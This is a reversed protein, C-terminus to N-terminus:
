PIVVRLETGGGHRERLTLHGGLAAARDQMNRLGFGGGTGAVSPRSVGRGDDFVRLAIGSETPRLSVVVNRAGGHRAANAIAERAIRAIQERAEPALEAEPAVDVAVAIGFRGRLDHAIAEFAERPPASRMDSLETITDRSLALARRTAVTLPHDSGLQQAIQAGHAAIFALDQALGDHLDEAVRRREAMAVARTLTARIELNRRVAAALILVLALAWLGEGPTITEPSISPLTLYYLRATALLVAGGALLLLVGNRELRGRRSLEAAAFAFLAAAGVVVVLALPHHAAAHIWAGSHRGAVVVKGSLLLGFVEAMGAAAFALLTTAAIPRRGGTVLRDSPTGAAVAFGAAVILLGLPLIAIFGRDSRVYLAAPMAFASFEILALTLLAGFLLLDRLRREHAFQARVLWAATLALMTIGTELTPRLTPVSYAVPHLFALVLVAAAGAIVLHLWSLHSRVATLGGSPTWARRMSAASAVACGSLL